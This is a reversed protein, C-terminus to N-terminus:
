RATWSLSLAQEFPWIVVSSCRLAFNARVRILTTGMVAVSGPLNVQLHACVTSTWINIVARLAFHWVHWLKCKLVSVTGCAAEQFLHFSVANHLQFPICLHEQSLPSGRHCSPFTPTPAPPPHFPHSAALECVPESVGHMHINCYFWIPSLSHCHWPPLCRRALEGPGARDHDFYMTQMKSSCTCWARVAGVQMVCCLYLFFFFVCFFPAWHSQQVGFQQHFWLTLVINLM